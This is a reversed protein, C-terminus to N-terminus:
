GKTLAFSHCFCNEWMRMSGVLSLLMNEWYKLSFHILLTNPIPWQLVRIMMKWRLLSHFNNMSPHSTINRTLSCPFSLISWEQTHLPILWVIVPSILVTHWMSCSNYRFVSSFAQIKHVDQLYPPPVQISSCEQPCSSRFMTGGGTQSLVSLLAIFGATSQYVRQATWRDGDNWVCGHGPLLLVVYWLQRWHMLDSWTYEKGGM